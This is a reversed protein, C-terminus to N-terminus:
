GHPLPIFGGTLMEGTASVCSGDACQTIAGGVRLNKGEHAWPGSLEHPAIQAIRGGASGVNGRPLEINLKGADLSVVKELTQSDLKALSSLIKTDAEALKILGSIGIKKSLINLQYADFHVILKQVTNAGLEGVIQGYFLVTEAKGALEGGINSKILNLLEDAEILKNQQRLSLVKELQIIQDPAVKSLIESGPVALIRSAYQSARVSTIGVASAIGLDLFAFCLNVWSLFYRTRATQLDIDVIPRGVQGVRALEILKSNEKLDLVSLTLGMMSGGVWLLLVPVGGPALCAAITLGISGTILGIHIIWEKRKQWKLWDQVAKCVESPASGSAIGQEQLVEEVLPGLSSVAIEGLQIKLVTEEISNRLSKINTLIHDRIRSVNSNLNMKDIFDEEILSLFPFEQRLELRKKQYENIEKEAQPDNIYCHDTRGFVPGDLDTPDIDCDVHANRESDIVIHRFGQDQEIIRKFNYWAKSSPDINALHQELANLIQENENLRKVAKSRVFAKFLEVIENESNAWVSREPKSTTLNQGFAPSFGCFLGLCCILMGLSLRVLIRM